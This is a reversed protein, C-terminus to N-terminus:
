ALDVVEPVFIEIAELWRVALHAGSVDFLRHLFAETREDQVLHHTLIGTPEGACILGLRRARLHAILSSLAVEEGIFDRGASWAVLDVHVNAEVVGPV